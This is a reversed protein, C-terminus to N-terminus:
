GISPMRELRQGSALVSLPHIPHLLQDKPRASGPIVAARSTPKVRSGNIILGLGFGIGDCDGDCDVLWLEM